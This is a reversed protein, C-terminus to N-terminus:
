THRKQRKRRDRSSRWTTTAEAQIQALVDPPADANDDRM